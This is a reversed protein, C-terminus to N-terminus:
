SICVCYEIFKKKDKISDYLLFSIENKYTKIFSYFERELCDYDEQLIEFINRNDYRNYFIDSKNLYDAFLKALEEIDNIM